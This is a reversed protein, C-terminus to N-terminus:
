IKVRIFGLLSLAAIVIVAIVAVAAIAVWIDNSGGDDDDGTITAAVKPQESLAYNGADKGTLAFAGNVSLNGSRDGAALRGTVGTKDLSVDDSGVKGSFSGANSIAIHSDGFNGNGDYEKSATVSGTFTIPKPNITGNAFSPQQVSYYASQGGSIGWGSANVRKGTGANADSFEAKGERVNVKDSGLLGSLAPATLVTASTNGDYTKSAVTGQSWTLSRKNVTFSVDFTESAEGGNVTVTATYMGPVLGVKPAVTFVSTGEAAISGITTVSLVFSGANTGGLDVNLVGTPQGGTNTVTVSTPIQASYGYTESSSLTGSKDLSISTPQATETKYVTYQDIIEMTDARYTKFTVSGDSVDVVTFQPAKIQIGINTYWPKGPLSDVNLSNKGEYYLGVISDVWAPLSPKSALFDYYKLGSATTLTFYITGKPNTVNDKAYDIDNVKEHGLISWSRSYVHDHGALVFDVGYKDMLSEFAPTWLLVDADTQHSAPSATSKHHQVFIWKAGPNAET